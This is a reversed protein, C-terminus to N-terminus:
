IVARLFQHCAEVAGFCPPCFWANGACPLYGLAALGQWGVLQQRHSSTRGTVSDFRRGKRALREIAILAFVFLMMVIALQAAGAINNMNLWVDYIGPRLLKCRLSIWRALIM